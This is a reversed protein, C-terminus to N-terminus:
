RRRRAISASVHGMQFFDIDDGWGVDANPIEKSKDELEKWLWTGVPVKLEIEEGRRGQTGQAAGKGGNGGAIRFPLDGLAKM